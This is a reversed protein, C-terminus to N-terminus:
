RRAAPLARTLYFTGRSGKVQRAFVVQGSRTTFRLVKRRVPRIVAGRPGHIGTGDHHFRAYMVTSGVRAAPAGNVIIITVALTSRLRGTDVGVLTKAVAVVRQGRVFMDRAVGGTPSRLLANIGAQNPRHTVSATAM